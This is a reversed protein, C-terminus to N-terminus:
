LAWFHAARTETWAGELVSLVCRCTLATIIMVIQRCTVVSGSDHILGLRKCQLPPPPSVLVLMYVCVGGFFFFFIM